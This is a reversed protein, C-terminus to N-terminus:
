KDNFNCIERFIRNCSETSRRGCGLDTALVLWQCKETVRTSDRGSFLSFRINKKSSQRSTEHQSIFFSIDHLPLSLTALTIRVQPGGRYRSVKRVRDGRQQWAQSEAREEISKDDSFRHPHIPINPWGRLRHFFFSFFFNFLLLLASVPRCPRKVRKEREILRRRIRSSERRWGRDRNRFM